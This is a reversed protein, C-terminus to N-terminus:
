KANNLIEAFKKTSNNNNGMYLSSTTPVGTNMMKNHVIQMNMGTNVNNMTNADDKM